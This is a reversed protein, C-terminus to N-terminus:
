KITAPILKGNKYQAPTYVDGRGTSTSSYILVGFCLIMMALMGYFVYIWPAETWALPNGRRRAWLFWFSYLIIPLLVPWFYELIIRIM